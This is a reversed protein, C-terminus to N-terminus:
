LKGVNEKTVRLARTVSTPLWGVFVSPRRPAGSFRFSTMVHCQKRTRTLAVLFKCVELDSIQQADHPLEGEHVGVVFVHQASLGKSGEFSVLKITPVDHNEPPLETRAEDPNDLEVKETEALIKQKFDPPLLQHLNKGTEVSRRIVTSEFDPRDTELVTRWGL